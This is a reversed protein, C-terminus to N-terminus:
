HLSHWILIRMFIKNQINTKDKTIKLNISNEINIIFDTQLNFTRLIYSAEIGYGLLKSSFLLQQQPSLSKIYQISVSDVIGEAVDISRIVDKNFIYDCCAKMYNDFFEESLDLQPLDNYVSCLGKYIAYTVLHDNTSIHFYLNNITTLRDQYQYHTSYPSIITEKSLEIIDKISAGGEQVLLIFFDFVLTIDSNKIHYLIHDEMLESINLTTNKTHTYFYWIKPQYSLPNHLHKKLTKTEFIPYIIDFPSEVNKIYNMIEQQQQQQQQHEQQHEQINQLKTQIIFINKFLKLVQKDDQNESQQYIYDYPIYNNLTNRIYDADKNDYWFLVKLLATKYNHKNNEEFKIDHIFCIQKNKFEQILITESVYPLVYPIYIDPYYDKVILPLNVEKKQPTQTIQQPTTYEQQM